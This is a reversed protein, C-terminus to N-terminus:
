RASGPRVLQTQVGLKGSAMSIQSKLDAEMARLEKLDARTKGQTDLHYSLGDTLVESIAAQVLVLQEDLTAM